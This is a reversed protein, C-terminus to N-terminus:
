HTQNWVTENTNPTSFELQLTNETRNNLNARFSIVKKTESKRKEIYFRSKVATPLFNRWTSTGLCLLLRRRSQLIYKIYPQWTHIIRDYYWKANLSDLIKRRENFASQYDSTIGRNEPSRHPGKIRQTRRAIYTIYASSSM